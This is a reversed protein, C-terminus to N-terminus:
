QRPGEHWLTDDVAQGYGLQWTQRMYDRDFEISSVTRWETPLFAYRLAVGADAADDITEDLLLRMSTRTLNSISKGALSLTRAEVPDPKAEIQNHLIVDLRPKDIGRAPKRYAPPVLGAGTYFYALLGADGHLETFQKGGFEAEIEVPPLAGPISFSARLVDRFLAASQETGIGAIRGMNWITLQNADLNATAVLLRRGKAHEAAIEALLRPTVRENLFRTIANSSYISPGFLAAGYNPRGLLDGVINDRYLSAVFHDYKEGVFVYPAIMAGTSAGSVIEYAPRKGAIRLGALAGAGFAGDPGGSSLALVDFRGGEIEPPKGRRAESWGLAYQLDPKRDPFFRLDYFDGIRASVLEDLTYPNRVTATVCGALALACIALVANRLAVAPQGRKGGSM